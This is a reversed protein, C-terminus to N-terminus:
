TTDAAKSKRYSWQLFTWVTWVVSFCVLGKLNYAVDKPDYRGHIHAHFFTNSYEQAYEIFIGFIYLALFIIIHRVINSGALLLNLFAAALFYFLAHLEKDNHRFVSPLKVLFGVLAAIFFLIIILIKQGKTLRIKM